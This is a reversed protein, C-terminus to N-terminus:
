LPSVVESDASIEGVQVTFGVGPKEGQGERM